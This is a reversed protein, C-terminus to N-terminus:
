GLKQLIDASQKRQAENKSVELVKKLAGRVSEKDKDSIKGDLMKAAIANLAAASEERLDANNLFPTVLKLADANGINGLGGLVLKKESAPAVPLAMQYMKLRESTKLNKDDALRVYGRFALVKHTASTANQSLDLLASALNQDSSVALTRIAADRVSEDPNKAAEVLVANAKDGGIAGAIRLLSAKRMPAAEKLAILVSGLAAQTDSGNQAALATTKELTLLERKNANLAKDQLALLMPVDKPQATQSLAELAALRVNAEVDGAAKLLVETANPAQRAGLAKALVARENPAAKELQAMLEADIDAGRLRELSSQAVNKEAMSGDAASKTLTGITSVDGAMALTGLAAVRVNEDKSKLATVAATRVAPIRFNSLSNLALVQSSEPLTSVGNAVSILAGEPLESIIGAATLHLNKDNSKLAEIVATSILGHVDNAGEVKGVLPELKPPLGIWNNNEGWQSWASIRGRWAAVKTASPINPLAYIEDFIKQAVSIPEYQVAAMQSKPRKLLQYAYMLSANLAAYRVVSKTRANEFTKASWVDGIKSLSYLAARAIHPDNGVALKELAERSLSDRRVGLSDIVGALTASKTKSLAERLTQLAADNPMRELVYRAFFAMEEDDGVLIAKLIPVQKEDGVIALQRCAFKKADKTADKNELIAGLKAALAAREADTKPTAAMAKEITKLAVLSDGFKYSPLKQWAQDLTLVAATKVKGSDEDFDNKPQALLPLCILLLSFAIFKIKMDTLKYNRMGREENRM